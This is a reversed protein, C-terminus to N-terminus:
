SSGLLSSGFHSSGFHSRFQQVSSFAKTGADAPNASGRVKRYSVKGSAAVHQCFLQKVELHRVRGVGVRALMALGAKSDMWVTAPVAVASVEALFNKVCLAAMTARHGGALEAEASSQAVFSQQKTSTTLVMGWSWMATWLNGIQQDEIGESKTPQMMVCQKRAGNLYRVMRKLVGMAHKTPASM